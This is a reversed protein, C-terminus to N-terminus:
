AGWKAITMMIDSYDGDIYDKNLRSVSNARLMWYIMDVTQCKKYECHCSEITTM